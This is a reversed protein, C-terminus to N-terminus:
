YKTEIFQLIWIEFFEFFFTIIDHYLLLKNLWFWVHMKKIENIMKKPWNLKQQTIIPHSNFVVHECHHFSFKRVDCINYIIFIIFIFDYIFFIQWSIKLVIKDDDNMHSTHCFTTQCDIEHRIHIFDSFCHFIKIMQRSFITQPFFFSERNMVTKSIFHKSFNSDSLPRKFPWFHSQFFSHRKSLWKRM